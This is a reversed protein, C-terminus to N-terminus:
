FLKPVGVGERNETIRNTFDESAAFFIDFPAGEIIQASLSASSGWILDVKIGNSEEFRVALKELLPQMSSAAAVRIKDKSPGCSILLSGLLLVGGTVVLRSM